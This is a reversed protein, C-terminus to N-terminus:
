DWAQMGGHCIENSHLFDVAEAVQRITHHAVDARARRAGANYAYGPVNYLTYVSPGAVETVLCNHQGNPGSLTFYDTVNRIRRKGPHDTQISSIRQLTDCETSSTTEEAKLIKIARYKDETNDRALWTTSLGGFGVKHLIKYRGCLIDGIHVPHYGGQRYEEVDEVTDMGIPFFSRCMSRMHSPQPILATTRLCQIHHKLSQTFVSVVRFRM